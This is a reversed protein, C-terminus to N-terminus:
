KCVFISFWLNLANIWPRRLPKPKIRIIHPSEEIAEGAELLVFM